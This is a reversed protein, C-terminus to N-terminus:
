RYWKHNAIMLAEQVTIRIGNNYAAVFADDIVTTNWIFVRYDRANKYTPFAGISYKIWGDHQESKM